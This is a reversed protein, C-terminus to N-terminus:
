TTLGAVRSRLREMEDASARAPSISLTSSAQPVPLHPLAKDLSERSINSRRSEGSLRAMDREDKPPTPPPRDPVRGREFDPKAFPHSLPGDSKPPTPPPVEGLSQNPMEANGLVTHQARHPELNRGRLSRLSEKSRQPTMSASNASGSEAAEGIVPLTVLDQREGDPSRVSSISRDPVDEENAGHRRSKEAQKEAKRIVKETGAPNGNIDPSLLNVGALQPDDLTGESRRVALGIDNATEPHEKEYEARERTKTIGAIFKIFRDGYREPPIASIQSEPSSM